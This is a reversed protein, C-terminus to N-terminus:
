GQQEVLKRDFLEAISKGRKAAILSPSVMSRLAKLTAIVVNSANSPGICKALVDQVGLVKFVARMAGGAIIGTGPSAPLMVVKTNGRSATVKHYLTGRNLEIKEVNQRANSMAKQIATAVERAKGRGVGIRGKGDGVVVIAYFHFVRGGSVVNTVRGLKVLVEEFGDNRPGASIVATSDRDESAGESALDIQSM